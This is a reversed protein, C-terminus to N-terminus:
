GLTNQMYETFGATGADMGQIDAETDVPENVEDEELVNDPNHGDLLKYLMRMIAEDQIVERNHDPASDAIDPYDSEMPSTPIHKQLITDKLKLAKGIPRRALFPKPMHQPWELPALNFVHWGEM